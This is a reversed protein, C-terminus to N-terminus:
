NAPLLVYDGYNRRILQFEATEPEQSYRSEDMMALALRLNDRIEDSDGNDTAYARRFVFTAEAVHGQEMLIVGLNNWAEPYEPDEELARRLLDEAQGLRGLALNASGLAALIEANLGQQAAARTFSKLAVEYEGGEMARHGAALHDIEGRGTVGPAFLGDPRNLGGPNCAALAVFATAALVWIIRPM